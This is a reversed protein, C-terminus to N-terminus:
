RRIDSKARLQWKANDTTFDWEALTPTSDAPTYLVFRTNIGERGPIAKPMLRFNGDTLQEIRWLQESTGTFSPVTTLELDATAALARETDAITIKFYPGGLYGGAEPVPTITWHQYPRMM